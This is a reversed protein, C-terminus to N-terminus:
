EELFRVFEWYDKSVKRQIKVRRQSGSQISNTVEDWIKQDEPLWASVKTGDDLQVEIYMQVMGSRLPQYAATIKGEATKGCASLLAISVALLVLVTIRVLQPQVKLGRRAQCRQRAFVVSLLREM